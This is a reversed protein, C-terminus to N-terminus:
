NLTHSGQDVVVLSNVLMSKYDQVKMEKKAHAKNIFHSHVEQMKKTSSRTVLGSM